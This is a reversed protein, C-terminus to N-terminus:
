CDSLREGKIEGTASCPQPSCSESRNGSLVSGQAEVILASFKLGKAPVELSEGRYIWSVLSCMMCVSCYLVLAWSKKQAM